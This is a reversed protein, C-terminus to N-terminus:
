DMGEGCIQLMQLCVNFTISDLLHFVPGRCNSHSGKKGIILTYIYMYIDCPSVFRVTNPRQSMVPYDNNYM